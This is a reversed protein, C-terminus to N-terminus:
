QCGTPHIVDSDVPTAVDQLSDQITGGLIVGASDCLKPALDAALPNKGSTFTFAIIVDSDPQVTVPLQTSGPDVPLPTVIAGTMEADLIELQGISVQSPGSARAGLHLELQFAGDISPGFVGQTVAISPAEIAATVFIAPDTNPCGALLPAAALVFLLARM